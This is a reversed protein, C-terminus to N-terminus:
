HGFSLERTVQWRGDQLRWVQVFGFTGCDPRGNETHCFRHRGFQLAGYGAIPHVVTAEPILERRIDRNNAFVNTFGARVAAHDLLGGTDHFFELEPAFFAMLADVDHADYAAFMRRDLDLVLDRLAVPDTPITATVPADRVAAPTAPKTAAPADAARASSTGVLAVVALLASAVALATTRPEPSRLTTM